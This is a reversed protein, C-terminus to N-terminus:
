QQAITFRRTSRIYSLLLAPKLARVGEASFLQGELVDLRVGIFADCKGLFHISTEREMECFPCVNSDMRGIRHLHGKLTSHGTIVMVFNRLNVRCLNGLFRGISLSPVDILQKTQRAGNYYRWIKHHLEVAKTKIAFRVSAMAVPVIPEPGFVVMEAADKAFEDVEENGYFGVHAPIWNSCRAIHIRSDSYIFIRKNGPIHCM